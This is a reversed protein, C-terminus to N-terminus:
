ATIAQLEANALRKPLFAIRRVTGNHSGNTGTESSGIHMRDVTPVTGTVDTVVATGNVSIAFDNAKYAIAIALTAWVTPVPTTSTVVQLVGGAIIQLDARLGLGDVSINVRIQNNATGDSITFGRGTVLVDRKAIVVIAGEDQRHWESFNTGTMSAVDAARTTAATSTPIYSTPFAGAELQAGWVYIGSTGDGTYSNTTGDNLSIAVKNVSSVTGKTATISCRFWGGGVSTISASPSTYDATTSFVDGFTGAVLDFTGGTSGSLFNSIELLMKSRTGAKAFVSATLTVSTASHETLPYCVHTDSATTDEVLKDATLTGDPAITANASISSRTKTWAANDFQESYTLLNTRAEEILLGSCEGTVPNHDIRPVGSAATRLVGQADYYTATSARVFTIRPDVTKSNAFDLLLSPRLNPLNPLNSM